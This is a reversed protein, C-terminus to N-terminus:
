TSQGKAKQKQIAKAAKGGKMHSFQEGSLEQQKAEEQGLNAKSRGGSGGKHRKSPM